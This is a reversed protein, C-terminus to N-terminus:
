HVITLHESLLHRTYYMLKINKYTGAIRSLAKIKQNATKCIAEVYNRFLLKSEITIGLLKVEETTKIPKGNIELSLKQGKELRM